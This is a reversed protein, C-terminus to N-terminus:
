RNIVRKIKNVPTTLTEYEKGITIVVITLLAAFVFWVLLGFLGGAIASIQGSTLISYLEPFIVYAIAGNVAVWVIALPLFIFLVGVIEKVYNM